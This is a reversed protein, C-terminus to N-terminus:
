SFPVKGISIAVFSPSSPKIPEEKGSSVLYNYNRYASIFPNEKGEGEALASIYSTMGEDMWEHKAENTALLHQFWAHAMEHATVGILSGLKRQGTILTCMAYEM